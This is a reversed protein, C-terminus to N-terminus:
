KEMPKHPYKKLASPKRITITELLFDFVFDSLPGDMFMRAFGLLELSWFM